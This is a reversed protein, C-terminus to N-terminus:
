PKAQLENKLLILANEVEKEELDNMRMFNFKDNMMILALGKGTRKKDKGMAQILDDKKFEFNQLDILLSPMLLDKYIYEHLQHSIVGRMYAVSNALFMGIVVAQGHPIAYESITEIAHGFCHGYNLLNRKDTDFEDEEIYEKKIILSEEIVKSILVTDRQKLLPLVRRIGGIKEQGAMIHLKVIEGLGSYYDVESLTLLFEPYIFIKSPPYFTGTLNKYKKYNLSTKSGICSDAQALLTTPVFIWNIGRYLTSATYGCIDQLIGGGIIILTINKKANLGILYDYLNCVSEMNKIEESIPQIITRSLPIKRLISDRYLEWVTDDIIFAYNEQEILTKLFNETETFEVEYNRIKSKIIM